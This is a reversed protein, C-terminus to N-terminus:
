ATKAPQDNANSEGTTKSEDNRISLTGSQQYLDRVIRELHSIISYEYTSQVVQTVGFDGTSGRIIVGNTVTEIDVIIRM